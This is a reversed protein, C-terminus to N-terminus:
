RCIGWSSIWMATLYRWYIYSYVHTYIWTSFFGLLQSLVFSYSNNLNASISDININTDCDGKVWESFLLLVVLPKWSMYSQTCTHSKIKETFLKLTECRENKDRLLRYKWRWIHFAPLFTPSLDELQTAQAPNTQQLQFQLLWFLVFCSLFERYFAM